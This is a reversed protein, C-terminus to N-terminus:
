TLLPPEWLKPLLVQEDGLKLTVKNSWLRRESALDQLSSCIHYSASTNLVWANFSSKSYKYISFNSFTEGERIKDKGKISELFNPCNKELTRRRLLLFM